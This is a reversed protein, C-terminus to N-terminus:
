NEVAVVYPNGEFILPHQKNFPEFTYVRQEERNPRMGRNANTGMKLLDVLQAALTTMAKQNKNSAHNWATGGINNGGNENEHNNAQTRTQPAMEVISTIFYLYNSFVGKDDLLLECPV